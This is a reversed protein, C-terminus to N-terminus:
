AFETPSIIRLRQVGGQGLPADVDAAQVDAAMSFVGKWARICAALAAPRLGGVRSRIRRSADFRRV